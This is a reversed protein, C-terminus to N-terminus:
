NMQQQKGRGDQETTRDRLRKPALRRPRPPEVV